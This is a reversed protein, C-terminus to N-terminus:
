QAKDALSQPLRGQAVLEHIKKYAPRSIYGRKRWMVVESPSRDFLRGVKTPSNDAHAFIAEIVEKAQVIAEVTKFAM